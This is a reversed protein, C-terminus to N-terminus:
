SDKRFEDSLSVPVGSVPGANYAPNTIFQYDGALM